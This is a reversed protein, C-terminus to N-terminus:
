RTAGVIEKSAAVLVQRLWRHGEDDHLAGHWAAEVEFEPLTIPAEARRLDDRGVVLREPLTAILDTGAVVDPASAFSSVYAAVHRELGLPSLALDVAGRTTAGFPAVLLHACAAFREPTLSGAWLAHDHRACVVFRDVFLGRRRYGDRLERHLGVSLDVERSELVDVPSRGHVPVVEITVQPAAARVERLFPQLVVLQTYDWMCLRFHRKSSEPEFTQTNVAEEISALAEAAVKAVYRARPTPVMRQGSRVMLPDSLVDRLRGLIRSMTPQSMGLSQAAASVSECEVLAKLAALERLELRENVFHIDCINLRAHRHM